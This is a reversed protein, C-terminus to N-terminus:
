KTRMRITELENKIQTLKFNISELIDIIKEEKLTPCNQYHHFGSTTVYGGCYHCNTSPLTNENM